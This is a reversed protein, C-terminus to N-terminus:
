VKQSFIIHWINKALMPVDDDHWCHGTFDSCLSVTNKNKLIADQPSQLSIIKDALANIAHTKNTNQLLMLDAQLQPIHWATMPLPRKDGALKRFYKLVTEPSTGLNDYMKQLQHIQIHQTFDEFGNIVIIKEFDHAQYHDLFFFLGMSHTIAINIADLSIHPAHYDGRYGRNYFFSCPVCSAHQKIFDDVPAFFHEDYSWGHFYYLHTAPIM